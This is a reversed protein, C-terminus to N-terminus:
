RKGALSLSGALNIVCPRLGLQLLAGRASILFLAPRHHAEYGQRCDHCQLPAGTSSLAMECRSMVQCRPDRLGKCDVASLLSTLSCPVVCLRQPVAVDGDNQVVKNQLKMQRSSWGSCEAPVLFYGDLLFVEEGGTGSCAPHHPARPRKAHADGGEAEGQGSCQDLHYITHRADGHELYHYYAADEGHGEGEGYRVGLSDVGDVALELVPVHQRCAPEDAGSSHCDEIFAKQSQGQSVRYTCHSSAQM